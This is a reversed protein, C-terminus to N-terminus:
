KLKEGGLIENISYFIEVKLLRAAKVFVKFYGFDREFNFGRFYGYNRVNWFKDM